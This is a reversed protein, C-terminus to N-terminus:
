VRLPALFYYFQLFSVCHCWPSDFGSSKPKCHLAEVLQAVAHRRIPHYCNSFFSPSSGVVAVLIIIIIMM